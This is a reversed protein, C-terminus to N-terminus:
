PKNGAVRRTFNARHVGKATPDQILRGISTDSFKSGDRTRYGRDNLLRAVTKKRHYEAFLEYILKRVPAETPHPVLKRDKWHYGYAVKGNLPKGLNARVAVSAKVRDAIKEREWQAMNSNAPTARVSRLMM